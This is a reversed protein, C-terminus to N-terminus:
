SIKNESNTRLSHKQHAMSYIVVSFDMLIINKRNSELKLKLNHNFSNVHLHFDPQEKESGSFFLIISDIQGVGIKGKFLICGSFM